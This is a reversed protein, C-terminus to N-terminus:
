DEYLFFECAYDPAYIIAQRKSYEFSDTNPEKSSSNQKLLKSILCIGGAIAAGIAGYKLMSRNQGRAATATSTFFDKAQTKLTSFEKKTPILYRSGMGFVAGTAVTLLAQANNRRIPQNSEIKIM